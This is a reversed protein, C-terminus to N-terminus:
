NPMKLSRRQPNQAPPGLSRPHRQASPLSLFGCVRDPKFGGRGLTKLRALHISLLCLSRFFARRGGTQAPRAQRCLPGEYRKRTSLASCLDGALPDRGSVATGEGRPEM